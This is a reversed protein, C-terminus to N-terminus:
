AGSRPKVWLHMQVDDAYQGPGYKLFGPMRGHEQFGLKRYVHIARANHGFVGLTVCEITPHARAWDIISQVLAVGIGDDRYTSTTAIGITGHHAMRRYKHAAFHIAGALIGGAAADFAGVAVWDPRDLHDQIWTAHKEPSSDREDLSRVGFESATQEFDRLHALLAHLDSAEITRLVISRGSKSTFTRPEIRGM